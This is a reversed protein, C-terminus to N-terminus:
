LEILSQTFQITKNLYISSVNVNISGVHLAFYSIHCLDPISVILYRVQGQVGYPFTVIACSFM